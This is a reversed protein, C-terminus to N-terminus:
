PLPRVIPEADYRRAVERLARTLATARRRGRLGRVHHVVVHPELGAARVRAGARATLQGTVRESEVALAAVLAADITWGPSPRLVAVTLPRDDLVAAAIAPPLLTDLDTEDLVVALLRRRAGPPPPGAAEPPQVPSSRRVRLLSPSPM